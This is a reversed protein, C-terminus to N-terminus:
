PLVFDHTLDFTLRGTQGQLWPASGQRTADAEHRARDLSAPPIGLVEGATPVADRGVAEEEM